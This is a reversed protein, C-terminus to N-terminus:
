PASFSHLCQFSLFRCILVLAIEDQVKQVGGHEDLSRCSRALSGAHDAPHDIKQGFAFARQIGHSGHRKRSFGRSLQTGAKLDIQFLRVAILPLRFTTSQGFRKRCHVATKDAGNMGEAATQKTLPRHFGSHVHSKTLDVVHFVLQKALLCPASVHCVQIGFIM